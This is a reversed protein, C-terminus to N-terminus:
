NVVSLKAWLFRVCNGLFRNEECNTPASVADVDFVSFWFTDVFIHALLFINATTVKSGTSVYWIQKSEIRKPQQDTWGALLSCLFFWITYPSFVQTSCMSHSSVCSWDAYTSRAAYSGDTDRFAVTLTCCQWRYFIALDIHSPYLLFDNTNKKRKLNEM